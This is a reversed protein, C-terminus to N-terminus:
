QAAALAKLCAAKADALGPQSIGSVAATARRKYGPRDKVTDEIFPLGCVRDAGLIHGNAPDLAALVAKPNRPLAFALSLGLDEASGADSGSALRPALAIWASGGKDMQDSVYDWEDSSALNGITQQAGHQSISATISAPTPRPVARAAIPALSVLCVATVLLRKM